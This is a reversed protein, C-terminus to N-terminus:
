KVTHYFVGRKQKVSAIEGKQELTSIYKNIETIRSGTVKSLDDATCPRRHITELIASEMDERYSSIKKRDRGAAIIEVNLSKDNGPNDGDSESEPTEYSSLFSKIQELENFSAPTIGSVAGPRDLTNIQIVDPAIKICADKLATLDEPSDNIGHLILIELAIKGNRVSFNVDSSSSSAKDGSNLSLLKDNFKLSAAKDDSGLSNTKDDSDSCSANNEQCPFTKNEDSLSSKKRRFAKYMSTFDVLGNIYDKIDINKHPRNVAKFTSSIAADLSPMVLDAKLLSNRVEKQNLLTGNTLVAVSINPKRKKIFDIVRGININLTPEGSGSFTIYDPDPHNDFYHGLEKIVWEHPVYARRELTLETTKGCECYICDLSCIKHTVLDVGLSIGLRRSPVPGFLYKYM